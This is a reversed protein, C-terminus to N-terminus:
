TLTSAEQVPYTGNNFFVRSSYDTRRVMHVWPYCTRMHYQIKGFVEGSRHLILMHKRHAVWDITYMIAAWIAESVGHFGGAGLM